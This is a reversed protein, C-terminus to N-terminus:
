PRRDAKGLDPREEQSMREAAPMPSEPQKWISHRDLGYRKQWESLTIREWGWNKGVSFVAETDPHYYTNGEAWLSSLFFEQFWPEKTHTSSMILGGSSQREPEFWEARVHDPPTISKGILTNNVITIDRVSGDFREGSFYGGVGGGRKTSRVVIQGHSNEAILCNNVTVNRSEAILIGGHNVGNNILTGNGIFESSDVFFPGSSAEMYLGPGANGNAKINRINISELQWDLWLGTALNDMYESNEILMDACQLFKVGAPVWDYFNGYSGIRWNNRNFSCGSVHVYRLRSIGAGSIGNDSFDCNRLSVQEYNAFTIGASNNERFRCNEILIQKSHNEPVRFNGEETNGFIAVAFRGSGHQSGNAARVFNLNRLILNNVQRFWVLQHRVSVQVETRRLKGGKPVQLWLRDAAEDVFFSGPKLEEESAVQLMREDGWWVMETRKALEDRVHKDYFDTSHAIKEGATGWDHPWPAWYRGKGAKNWDTWVDAGSLIVQDPAAGEIITASASRPKLPTVKERYIGPQILVKLALDPHENLFTFADRISLYDGGGAPDVVITKEISSEDIRAQARTLFPTFFLLLSLTFKWTSMM